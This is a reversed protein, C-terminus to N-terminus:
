TFWFRLTESDGITLSGAPVGLIREYAERYAAVTSEVVEFPIANAQHAVFLETAVQNAGQSLSVLVRAADDPSTVSFVGEDKGQRIIQALLPGLTVVLRQRFKERVITNDDSLWVRMVALVLNKREAKWGAIGSFLRDLKALAPLSPDAVVPGLAATAADVMREVVVELLAVKSDFYHYFAGRSADLEDLVDQISMQEYGKAQILRQGADVFAEQRVARAESNVTRAM